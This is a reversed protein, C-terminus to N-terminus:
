WYNPTESSTGDSSASMAIGSAANPVTFALVRAAVGTPDENAIALAGMTLGNNCVGNWNGTNGGARSWWGYGLEPNTYSLEGYNLGLNIISWMIANRQVPTWADFMWDYGIAFAATFEALDQM